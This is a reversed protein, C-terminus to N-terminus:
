KAYENNSYALPGCSRLSSVIFEFRAFCDDISEGSKPTFTQYPRNYTNKRSSKIQSSGEYINCLKLWADHALELHSVHDYVNRGLAITILNLGNYNNEYM